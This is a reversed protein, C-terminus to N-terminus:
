NNRHDERWGRSQMYRLAALTDAWSANPESDGSQAQEQEVRAQEEAFKILESLRMKSFDPQTIM